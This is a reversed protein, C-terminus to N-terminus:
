IKFGLSLYDNIDPYAKSLKWNTKASKHYGVKAHERTDIIFAVLESTLNILTDDKSMDERFKIVAKMALGCEYVSSINKVENILNSFEEIKAKRSKSVFFKALFKKM